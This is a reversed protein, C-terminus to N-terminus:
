ILSRADTCLGSRIRSVITSPNCGGSCIFGVVKELHISKRALLRIFCVFALVFWVEIFHIFPQVFNEDLLEM